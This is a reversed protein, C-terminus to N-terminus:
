LPKTSAAEELPRDLAQGPAVLLDDLFHPVHDPVLDRMVEADVVVRQPPHTGVLLRVFLLSAALFAMFPYYVYFPWGGDGSTATGVVGAILAVVGSLIIAQLWLPAPVEEQYRLPVNTKM